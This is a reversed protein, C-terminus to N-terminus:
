QDPCSPGNDRQYRPAPTRHQHQLQQVGVKQGVRIDRIEQRTTNTFSLEISTLTDSHLHPARTFRYRVQLGSGAVPSVLERYEASVHRASVVQLSVRRGTLEPRPGAYPASLDEAAPVAGVRDTVLVVATFVVLRCFM